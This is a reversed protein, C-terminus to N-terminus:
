ELTMVEIPESVTHKEFIKKLHECILWSSLLSVICNAVLLKKSLKEKYARREGIESKLILKLYFSFWKEDWDEFMQGEGEEKTM